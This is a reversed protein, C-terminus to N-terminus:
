HHDTRFMESIIGAALVAVPDEGAGEVAGDFDPVGGESEGGGM